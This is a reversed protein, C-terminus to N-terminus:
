RLSSLMEGFVREVFFLLWEIFLLVSSLVRVSGRDSRFQTLSSCIQGILIRAQTVSLSLYYWLHHNFMKLLSWAHKETTGPLVGHLRWGVEPVMDRLLAPQRVAHAAPQGSGVLQVASGAALVDLDQAVLPDVGVSVVSCHVTPIFGSVLVTYINSRDM